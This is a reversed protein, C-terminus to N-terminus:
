VVTSALMEEALAKVEELTLGSDESIEEYSLKGRKIMKRATTIRTNKELEEMARCMSQIGEKSGKLYRARDALVKYKMEEPDSCMFDHMLIGLPTDDKCAGNVYIIHSGDGFPEGTERITRDIHYIPLEAGLEDRETIFIVYNETLRDYEAGQPLINVDVASSNYRARKPSAGKDSRQIEIDYKKGEADVAFVDLRVSHGQLNRIEHQSHVSEVQLGPNDLIIKLVFETCEKNDEFFKAMYDDDMLRFARIYALQQESAIINNQHDELM